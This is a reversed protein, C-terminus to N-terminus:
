FAKYKIIHLVRQGALRYPAIHLNLLFHLNSLDEEKKYLGFFFCHVVKSLIWNVRSLKKKNKMWTDNFDIIKKISTNQRAKKLM